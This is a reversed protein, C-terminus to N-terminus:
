RASRVAHPPGLTGVGVADPAPGPSPMQRPERPPIVKARAPDLPIRLSLTTGHGPLSEVTLHGGLARALRQGLALGLLRDATPHPDTSLAFADHIREIEDESLERGVHQVLVTVWDSGRGPELLAEVWVTGDRVRRLEHGILNRLVIAIQSPDTVISGVKDDVEVMLRDHRLQPLPRLESVIQELLLRLDVPGITPSATARDWMTLNALQDAEHALDDSLQILEGIEPARAHAEVWETLRGIRGRLSGVVGQLATSRRRLDLVRRGSELEAMAPDAVASPERVTYVQVSPEVRSLHVEVSFASGDAHRARTSLDIRAPQSPTVSLDHVTKQGQVEPLLQGIKMQVLEAATYGFLRTAADNAEQVGGGIGVVLVADFSDIVLSRRQAERSDLEAGRRVVEAHMREAKVELRGHDARLWAMGALTLPSTGLTWFLPDAIAPQGPHLLQHLVGAGLWLSLGAAAGLAVGLPRPM